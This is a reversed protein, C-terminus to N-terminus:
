EGGTQTALGGRESILTSIRAIERRLRKLGATDTAQATALQFRLTFLERKAEELKEVLEMDALTRLETAKTM